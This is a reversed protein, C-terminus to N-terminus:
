RAISRRLYTAPDHQPKGIVPKLERNGDQSTSLQYGWDFYVYSNVDDISTIRIKAYRYDATWIVYTHGDIAEVWGVNSWGFEPAYSIEDFSTTYGMDQIDIDPYTVNIFWVGDVSDLYIDANADTWATRIGYPSSNTFNFGASGPAVYLDRMYNSGEPRPTDFTSDPSLASENGAKDFASVAYFYTTTNNVNQDLYSSGTVDAIASYPGAYQLARWVRYFDLDSEGNPYWDVWVQGDGTTSTVGRPAAPAENGPGTVYVTKTDNCGALILTLVTLGIMKIGNM